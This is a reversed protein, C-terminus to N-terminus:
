LSRTITNNNKQVINWTYVALSEPVFIWKGVAAVLKIELRCEWPALSPGTAKLLIGIEETNILYVLLCVYITGNIVQHKQIFSISTMRFGTEIPEKLLLMNTKWIYM